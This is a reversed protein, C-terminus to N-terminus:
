DAVLELAQFKTLPHGIDYGQAMDCGLDNLMRTHEPTEVGEAVVRIELERAMEVIKKVITAHRPNDVIPRVLRRDMKVIHPALKALYELSAYGTGFDDISLRFGMAKATDAWECLQEIDVFISETLELTIDTTRCGAEMCIDWAKNLFESDVADKPSVNVSAFLDHSAADKFEVLDEAVALFVYLSLPAILNTEEALSVLGLPSVAGRIAHDWRILAEFGDPSEGRLSKIPQYVVQIQENELADMLEAEFRIKGIGDSAFPLVHEDEALPGQYLAPQSRHRALLTNLLSRVVPDARTIRPQIQQPTVVTLECDETVRASATRRSQDIVGMEGLIEGAGLESLVVTGGEREVSIEIRGKEIIYACDAPEREHFIIDGTKKRIRNSEVATYTAM